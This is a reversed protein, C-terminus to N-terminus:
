EEESIMEILRARNARENRTIITSFAEYELSEKLYEPKSKVNAYAKISAWKSSSGQLGFLSSKKARRSFYFTRLRCWPHNEYGALSKNFCGIYYCPM